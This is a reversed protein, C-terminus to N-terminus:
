VLSKNNIQRSRIMLKYGKGTFAGLVLSTVFLIFQYLGKFKYVYLLVNAINKSKKNYVYNNFTTAMLVDLLINKSTNSIELFVSEFTNYYCRYKNLNKTKKELEGQISDIHVRRSYLIKNLFVGKPRNHALLKVFFNFEQGSKIQPDFRISGVISKRILLDGTVWFVKRKILNDVNLELSENDGFYFPKTSGDEYFNQCRSVVFDKSKFSLLFKIKEELFYVDMLDDSDFWNVYEGKAVDLGYNRAGNGGREYSNPRKYFKFRDDKVLYKSLIENTNDDSGDDVIICEWNVYSQQVITDLTDGILHARNYTPIIISILPFTNM